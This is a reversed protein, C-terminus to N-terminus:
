RLVDGKQRGVFLVREDLEVELSYAAQAGNVVEWFLDLGGRDRVELAEIEPVGDHVPVWPVDHSYGRADGGGSKRPCLSVATNRAELVVFLEILRSSYMERIGLVAGDSTRSKSNRTHWLRLKSNV